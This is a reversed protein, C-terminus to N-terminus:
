IITIIGYSFLSFLSAASFVTLIITLISRYLLIITDFEM